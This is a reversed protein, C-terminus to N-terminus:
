DFLDGDLLDGVIGGALDGGLAAGLISSDTVAGIVASVIFSDDEDVRLLGKKPCRHSSSSRSVYEGCHKCYSM